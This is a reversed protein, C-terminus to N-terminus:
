TAVSFSCTSTSLERLSSSDASFLLHWESILSSFLCRARRVFIQPSRWVCVGFAPVGARRLDTDGLVRDGCDVRVVGGSLLLDEECGLADGASVPPTTHSVDKVGSRVCSTSLSNPLMVGVASTFGEGKAEGEGEGEGTARCPHMMVTEPVFAAFFGGDLQEGDAVSLDDGANPRCEASRTCFRLDDSASGFIVPDVGQFCSRRM